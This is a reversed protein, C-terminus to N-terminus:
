VQVIGAHCGPKRASGQLDVDEVRGVNKGQKLAFGQM